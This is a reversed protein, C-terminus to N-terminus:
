PYKKKDIKKLASYEKESIGKINCKTHTKRIHTEFANLDSEKSIKYGIKKDKGSNQFEVVRYWEIHPFEKYGLQEIYTDLSFIDADRLIRGIYDLGYLSTLLNLFLGVPSKAYLPFAPQKEPLWDINNPPSQILQAHYYHHLGKGLDDLGEPSEFRYGLSNPIGHNDMLLLELRIRIEPLNRGFDCHLHIRPIMVQGHYMPDLCMYRTDNFRNKVKEESPLYAALDRDTSFSSGFLNFKEAIAKLRNDEYDSPKPSSRFIWLILERFVKVESNM